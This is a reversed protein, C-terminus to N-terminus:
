MLTVKARHLLQQHTRALKPTQSLSVQWDKPNNTDKQQKTMGTMSPKSCIELLDQRARVKLSQLILKLLHKQRLFLVRQILDKLQIM